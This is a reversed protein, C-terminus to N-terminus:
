SKMGKTPTGTAGTKRKKKVAGVTDSNGNQAPTVAEENLRAGSDPPNEECPSMIEEESSDGLTYAM